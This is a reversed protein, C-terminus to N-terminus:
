QWLWKLSRQCLYLCTSKPLGMLSKLLAQFKQYFNKLKQQNWTNEEKFAELMNKINCDTQCIGHNYIFNYNLDNIIMKFGFFSSDDEDKNYEKIIDRHTKKCVSVTWFKMANLNQIPQSNYYYFNGRLCAAIKDATDGISLIPDEVEM